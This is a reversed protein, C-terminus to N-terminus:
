HRAKPPRGRRRTATELNHQVAEEVYEAQGAKVMRGAESDSVEIVDGVYDSRWSGVRDVLM